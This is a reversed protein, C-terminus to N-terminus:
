EVRMGRLVAQFSRGRQNNKCTRGAKTTTTVDGNRENVRRHFNKPTIGQNCRTAVTRFADLIVQPRQGFPMGGCIAILGGRQHPFPGAFAVLIVLRQATTLFETELM